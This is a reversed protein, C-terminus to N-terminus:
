NSSNRGKKLDELYKESPFFLDVKYGYMSSNYLTVDVLPTFNEFRGLRKSNSKVQQEFMEYERKRVLIDRGFYKQPDDFYKSSSASFDIHLGLDTVMIRVSSFTDENSLKFSKIEILTDSWIDIEYGQFDIGSLTGSTIFTYLIINSRVLALFYPLTSM